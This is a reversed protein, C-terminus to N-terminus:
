SHHVEGYFPLKVTSIAAQLRTRSRDTLEVARNSASQASGIAVSGADKATDMSKEFTERADAKKWSDKTHQKIGIDDREGAQVQDEVKRLKQAAQSSKEGVMEAADALSLRTFSVFDSFVSSGETTMNDWFVQLSTRLSSAIAQYDNSLERSDMPSDVDLSSAAIDAQSLHWFAEQVLNEGIVSKLPM